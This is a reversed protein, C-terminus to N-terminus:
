KILCLYKFKREIIDARNKIKISFNYSLDGAWLYIDEDCKGRKYNLIIQSYLDVPMEHSESDVEFSQHIVGNPYSDNIAVRTNTLQIGTYVIDKLSDKNIDIDHLLIEKPHSPNLMGIADYSNILNFKIQRSYLISNTVTISSKKRISEILSFTNNNIISSGYSLTDFSKFNQDDVKFFLKHNKSNSEPDIFFLGYNGIHDKFVVLVGNDNTIYAVNYKESYNWYQSDDLKWISTNVSDFVASFSTMSFLSITFTLIIKIM